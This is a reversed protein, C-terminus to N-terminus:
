NKSVGSLLGSQNEKKRQADWNNPTSYYKQAEMNFFDYGDIICNM